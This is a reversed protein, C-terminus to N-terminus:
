DTNQNNCLDEYIDLLFKENNRIYEDYTLISDKYNYREECNKQYMRKAFQEFSISM